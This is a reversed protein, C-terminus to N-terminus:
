RARRTTIVIVGNSGRSGYQSTAAADKLVDISQIDRPDLDTLTGPSGVPKPIGDVVYLPERDATLSRQGRIHVSVGGGPLRRVEVGAFRGDIMDAVTMPTSRRAVDGEVTAVAANVDRKAARGYGLNVSDAPTTARPAPPAGSSACGALALLLAAGFRPTMRRVPLAFSSM